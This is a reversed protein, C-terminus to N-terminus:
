NVYVTVPSAQGANGASDYAVSSLTHSGRTAKQANWTFAASCSTASCASSGLSVGDVFAQLTTLKSADSASVAIKVSKTATSGNTPSTIRVQPPTTDTTAVTVQVTASTGVNGAADFAKAQLVHSGSAARSTDWAFSFPTAADSSLLAGDVYLDVRSVSRDDFATVDVTVVGSVV